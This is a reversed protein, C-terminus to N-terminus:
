AFFLFTKVHNLRSQAHKYSHGLFMRDKRLLEGDIFHGEIVIHFAGNNWPRGKRRNPCYCTCKALRCLIHADSKRRMGDSWANLLEHYKHIENILDHTRIDLRLDKLYM